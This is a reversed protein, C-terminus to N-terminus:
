KNLVGHLGTLYDKVRRSGLSDLLEDLRDFSIEALDDEEIRLSEVLYGLGNERWTIDKNAYVMDAIARLPSAVFAWHNRDLRTSEVGARLRKVPVRIYEFVGLPTDFRRSRAVNCKPSAEGGSRAKLPSVPLM